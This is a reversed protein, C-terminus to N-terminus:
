TRDLVPTVWRSDGGPIPVKHDGYAGYHSEVNAEAYVYIGLEDALDYLIKANPYHSTRVANVNYQKMLKLDDIIEQNTVASGNELSADHRNVGRFIIKQGTIQMQEQEADNINVKYIERFGVHEAEAEIVKGTSDKLELTVMYLNPTDPFWKKPNKVEITATKRDGLNVKKEGDADAANPDSAGTVGQLAKLKDYSITDQGILKGDMDKLKVDVTYGSTDEKDTLNRVDVDVNMTVDSNKDTRDAFSTQVFFDRLEARSDKSYLYIDRMIGSLQIFDQNELYSGIGWRYVKLAITNKGNKNLYPTINFDHATFSDATYGVQKGNIFLYYASRVSQLSLFVKRGDWNEPLEFETRYYGVPNYHTPAQPDDYEITNGQASGWPYISNTYIAEDFYKFTKDANRYTQWAHPVFEKQFDAKAEEPLTEELYGKADAADAKEPNEILAFDWEKQTLLKYYTSATENQDDLASKESNFATDADQYPVFDAHSPERNVEATSIDKYWEKGTFVPAEDTVYVRITNSTYEKGGTTLYSTIDTYGPKLAKIQNGELSAVEPHSSVTRIGSSIAAGSADKAVVAFNTTKGTQLYGASVELSITAKLENMVWLSTKCKEKM